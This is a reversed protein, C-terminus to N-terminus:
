YHINQDYYLRRESETALRASILRINDKRETFCAIKCSEKVSEVSQDLLDGIFELYENIKDSYIGKDGYTTGEYYAERLRQNVVEDGEGKWVNFCQMKKVVEDIIPDDPYQKRMEEWGPQKDQEVYLSVM